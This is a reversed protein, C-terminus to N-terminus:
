LSKPHFQGFRIRLFDPSFMEWLTQTALGAKAMERRDALLRLYFHDLTMPVISRYHWNDRLLEVIPEHVRGGVPSPQGHIKILPQQYYLRIVRYTEFRLDSKGTHLGYDFALNFVQGLHYEPLPTPWRAKSCDKLDAVDDTSFGCIHCTHAKQIQTVGFRM